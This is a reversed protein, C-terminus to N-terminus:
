PKPDLVASLHGVQATFRAELSANFRHDGHREQVVNRGIARTRREYPEFYVCAFHIPLFVHPRRAPHLKVCSTGSAIFCFHFQRLRLSSLSMRPWPATTRWAEM